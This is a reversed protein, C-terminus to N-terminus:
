YLLGRISHDLHLSLLKHVKQATPQIYGENVSKATKGVTSAFWGFGKTLAAM